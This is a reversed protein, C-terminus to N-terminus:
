DGATVARGFPSGPGGSISSIFLVSRISRSVSQKQKVFGCRFTPAKKHLYSTRILPAPERLNGRRESRERRAIVSGTTCFPRILSRIHNSAQCGEAESRGTGGRNYPRCAYPAIVPYSRSSPIRLLFSAAFLLSPMSAGLSPSFNGAAHFDCLLYNSFIRFFSFIYISM